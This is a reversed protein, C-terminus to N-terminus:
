LIERLDLHIFDDYEKIYKFGVKFADELFKPVNAMDKKIDVVM